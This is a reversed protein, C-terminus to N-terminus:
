LREGFRAMPDLLEKLEKGLATLQYETKPPVSAYVTRTLIGKTELMRLRTSLVKPSIGILAKQIESYRKKQALLERIILTTWKGDIIDATKKVPCEETCSQHPRKQM